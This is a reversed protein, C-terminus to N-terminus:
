VVQYFAMGGAGGVRHVAVLAFLHAVIDVAVIHGGKYVGKGFRRFAGGHVVEAPSFVVGDADEFGKGPKLRMGAFFHIIGVAVAGTGAVMDAIVAVERAHLGIVRLPLQAIANGVDQLLQQNGM